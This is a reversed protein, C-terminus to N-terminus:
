RIKLCYRLEKMVSGTGNESFGLCFPLLTEHGNTLELGSLVARGYVLVENVDSVFIWFSVTRYTDCLGDENREQPSSGM